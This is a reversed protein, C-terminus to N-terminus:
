NPKKKYLTEGELYASPKQKKKGEPVWSESYVSIPIEVKSDKAASMLNHYTTFHEVETEKIATADSNLNEIMKQLLSQHERINRRLIYFDTNDWQVQLSDYQKQLLEIQEEIKATSESFIIKMPIFLRVISGTDLGTVLAESISRPNQKFRESPLPTVWGQYSRRLDHLPFDLWIIQPSKRKEYEFQATETSLFFNQWLTDIEQKDDLSTMIRKLLVNEDTEYIADQNHMANRQVIALMLKRLFFADPNKPPTIFLDLQKKETHCLLRDKEVLSTFGAVIKEIALENTQLLQKSKIIPTRAIYKYASKPSEMNKSAGNQVLM